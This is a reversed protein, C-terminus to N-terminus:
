DVWAHGLWLADRDRTLTGPAPTGAGQAQLAGAAAGAAIVALLALVVTLRFARRTSTRSRSGAAMLPAYVVLPAVRSNRRPDQLTLAFVRPQATIAEVSVANLGNSGATM